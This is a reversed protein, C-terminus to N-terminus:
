SSRPVTRQRPIPGDQEGRSLAWCLLFLAAPVLFSLGAVVLRELAPSFGHVIGFGVNQVVVSAVTVTAGLAEWRWAILLGAAAVAFFSLLLWDALPIPEVAYPDPTLAILLIIAVIFLSWVRAIWRLVTVSRPNVSPIGVLKGGKLTHSSAQELVKVL